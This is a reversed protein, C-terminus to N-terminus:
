QKLKKETNENNDIGTQYNKGQNSKTRSSSIYRRKIESENKNTDINEHIKRKINHSLPIRSSSSPGPYEHSNRNPDEREMAMMAESVYKAGGRDYRRANELKANSDGRVPPQPLATSTLGSTAGGPNCPRVGDRYVNYSSYM